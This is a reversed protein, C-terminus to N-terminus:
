IIILESTEHEQKIAVFHTFNKVAIAPLVFSVHEYVSLLLPRSSARM